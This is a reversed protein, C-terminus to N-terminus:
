NDIRSARLRETFAREAQGILDGYIATTNMPTHNYRAALRNVRQHRGRCVCFYTSPRSLGPCARGHRFPCPGEDPRMDPTRHAMFWASKYTKNLCLGRAAGGAGERLPLPNQGHVM